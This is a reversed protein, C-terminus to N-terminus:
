ASARGRRRLARLVIFLLLFGLSSSILFSLGVWVTVFTRHGLLADLLLGLGVAFGALLAASVPELWPPSLLSARDVPLGQDLRVRAAQERDRIAVGITPGWVAIAAQSGEPNLLILIGMTAVM